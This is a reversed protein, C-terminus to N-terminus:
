ATGLGRMLAQEVPTKPDQRRGHASVIPATRPPPTFFQASGRSLSCSLLSNFFYTATQSISHNVKESAIRLNAIRPPIFLCALKEAVDIKLFPNPRIM